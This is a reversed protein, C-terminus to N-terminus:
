GVLEEYPRKLTLDAALARYQALKELLDSEGAWCIALADVHGELSGVSITRM